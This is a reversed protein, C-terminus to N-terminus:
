LTITGSVGKFNIIVGTKISQPDLPIVSNPQVAAKQGSDPSVAEWEDQSLNKLGLRNPDTKHTVVKGTVATKDESTGTHCAFLRQDAYLPVRYTKVTLYYCSTLMAKGNEIIGVTDKFEIKPAFLVPAVENKGITKVEGNPKFFRWLDDSLNRIGLLSTDRKASVVEGTIKEFDDNANSTHPAYLKQNQFLPV